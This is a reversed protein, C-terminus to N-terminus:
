LGFGVFRGEEGEVARALTKSKADRFVDEGEKSHLDLLLGESSLVPGQIFYVSQVDTTCNEVTGQGGSGVGEEPPSIAGEIPGRTSSGSSPRLRPMRTPHPAQLPDSGAAEGRQRQQKQQKSQKMMPLPEEDPPALLDELPTGLLERIVHSSIYLGFIAPIYSITGYFSKKYRQDTLALSAPAVPEDTWVAVIGSRGSNGRKGDRQGSRRGSSLSGAQHGEEQAEGTVTASGVERNSVANYGHQSSDVERFSDQDEEASKRQQEDRDAKRLRKRILASFPDGHTDWLDGVRVRSPDLHGGASHSPLSTPQPSPSPDLRGGASHSPLPHPSIHTWAILTDM